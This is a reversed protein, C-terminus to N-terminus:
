DGTALKILEYYERAKRMTVGYRVCFVALIKNPEVNKHQELLEMLKHIRIKREQQAKSSIM